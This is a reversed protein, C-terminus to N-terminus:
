LSPRNCCFFQVVAERAAQIATLLLAILVGIIAIVVLLEILTFGDAPPVVGYQDYYNSIALGFQKLNNTCVRRICCDSYGMGDRQTTFKVRVDSSLLKFSNM